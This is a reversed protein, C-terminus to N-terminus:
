RTPASPQVDLTAAPQDNVLVALRYHEDATRNGGFWAGLALAAPGTAKDPEWRLGTRHALLWDILEKARAVASGRAGAGAGCRGCSPRRLTGPSAPWRPARPRRTAPGASPWSRSCTWLWNSATWRPSLWPWTSWRWPRSRRGSATCGTSCASTARDPRAWPTCSCPASRATANPAEALRHHLYGLAHAFAQDPVVYGGSRALQLAWVIRASICPDSEGVGAVNWGGDGGQASLIRGIASRIRGDLLAADPGAADRTGALVQQAARAALLDSAAVEMAGALRGSEVQCWTPEGLVIDLLSRQLTPGVVIQLSPSQLAMAKPAEVWATADSDASGGATAFVPMGYPRLPVTRRLVDRRPGASLSLEFIVPIEPGLGASVDAGAPEPRRLLAKFAVHEVGPSRVEVSKKEETTRRGITTRLVVEVMGRDLAPHHVDAMIEAQDGDVFAAPLKLDGFLDKRVELGRKAEGALTGM